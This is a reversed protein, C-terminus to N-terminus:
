LSGLLWNEWELLSPRQQPIKAKLKGAVMSLRNDKAGAKHLLYEIVHGCSWRDAKIPSYMSAPSGSDRKGVEPATWGRTGRYGDIEENEDELQIAIDFDVIQLNDALDYVLNRPKIDMHAINHKHLCALGKILGRCLQTVNGRLHRADRDFYLQEEISHLKPLIAFSGSGAQFSEILSIVHPSQIKKLRKLIELENSGKTIYKAICETKSRDNRRNVNFINPPPQSCCGSNTCFLNPAKPRVKVFSEWTGGEGEFYDPVTEFGNEELHRVREPIEFSDLDHVESFNNVKQKLRNIQDETDENGSEAELLSSFNYLELAFALREDERELHFM